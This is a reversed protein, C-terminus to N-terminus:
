KSFIKGGLRIALSMFQLKHHWSPEYQTSALRAKDRGHRRNITDTVQSLKTLRKTQVNM